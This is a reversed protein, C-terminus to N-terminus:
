KKAKTHYLKFCKRGTSPNCLPVLCKECFSTTKLDQCQKCRKRNKGSELYHDLRDYRLNKPPPVCRPTNAEEMDDTIISEALLLRFQKVSMTMNENKLALHDRKMAVWANNVAIDFAQAFLRMYWKHTRFDTKNQAILQDVLDVGGMNQNYIEVM